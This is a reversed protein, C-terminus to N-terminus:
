IANLAALVELALAGEGKGIGKNHASINQEATVDLFEYVCVVESPTPGLQIEFSFFRHQPKVVLGAVGNRFGLMYSETEWWIFASAGVDIGWSAFFSQAGPPVGEERVLMATGLMAKFTLANQQQVNRQLSM